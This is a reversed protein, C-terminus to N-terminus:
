KEFIGQIVSQYESWDKIYIDSMEKIEDQQADSSFDYIGVTHIGMKKATKISYLADEFLWTSEETSSMEKMAAKFIDPQDKGKGVETTTFIKKIYKDFGVRKLAVEIMPRDTSTAITMPIGKEYVYDLFKIIGQKPQAENEYFSYTKKNVGDCIEEVTHKLGYKKQMYEAAESMTLDFMIEAINENVQCGQDELYLKGANMWISMSDLMTGDVDFIIGEVM